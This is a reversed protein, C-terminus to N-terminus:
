PAVENFAAANAVGTVTADVTVTQPTSPTTYVTSASGTSETAVPNSSFTGGAGGDIYSVSARLIANGYQDTVKVKLPLLATSVPGTQNNGSVVILSGPKEQGRSLDLAHLRHM